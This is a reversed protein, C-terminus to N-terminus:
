LLEKFTEIKDIESYNDNVFSKTGFIMQMGITVELEDITKLIEVVYIHQNTGKITKFILPAIVNDINNPKLKFYKTM